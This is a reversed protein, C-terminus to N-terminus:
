SKRRLIKGGANPEKMKFNETTRFLDGPVKNEPVTEPASQNRIEKQGVRLHKPRPPQPQPPAARPGFQTRPMLM